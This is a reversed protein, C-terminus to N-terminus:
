GPSFYRFLQTRISTMYYLPQGGSSVPTNEFEDTNGDESELYAAPVWGQEEDVNVFWWGLIFYSCILDIFLVFVCIFFLFARFIM